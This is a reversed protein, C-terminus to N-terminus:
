MYFGDDWATANERWDPDMSWEIGHWDLLQALESDPEETGFVVSKIDDASVGGMIQAEVYVDTNLDKFGSTTLPHLKNWFSPVADPAMLSDGQTVTTRDKVDDKLVVKVPGYAALGVDGDGGIRDEDKPAAYGYVPRQDNPVGDLTWLKDELSRRAKAPFAGQSGLTPDDHPSRWAGDKLVGKLSDPYIRVALDAEDLAKRMRRASREEAAIGADDLMPRNALGERFVQLRTGIRFRGHADRPHLQERFTALALRAEDVPQDM